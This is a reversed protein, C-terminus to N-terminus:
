YQKNILKILKEDIPNERSRIKSVLLTKLEPNQLVREVELKSKLFHFRPQNVLAAFENTNYFENVKKFDPKPIVQYLSLQEDTLLLYKLVDVEQMKRYVNGLDQYLMLSKSLIKFMIKKERITKSFLCSLPMISLKIIDCRSFRTKKIKEQITYSNTDTDMNLNSQDITAIPYQNFRYGKTKSRNFMNITSNAYGPPKSNDSMKKQDIKSCMQLKHFQKGIESQISIVQSKDHEGKSNVEYLVNILDSQFLYHNFYNGVSSISIILVNALACINTLLESIQM